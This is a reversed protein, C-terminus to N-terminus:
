KELTLNNKVLFDELTTKLKDLSSIREVDESAAIARKLDRITTQVLAIISLNEGWKPVPAFYEALVIACDLWGPNDHSYPIGDSGEIPQTMEIKVRRASLFYDFLAEDLNNKFVTTSDTTLDNM